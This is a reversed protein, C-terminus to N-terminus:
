TNPTIRYKQRYQAPSIGEAQRFRQSFYSPSSFGAIKAIHSLPFNTTRLLERCEQLRLSLMFSIPSVGYERTFTHSLHYKSVHAIEALMDLNLNERFHEKIYRCVLAGEKSNHNSAPAIKAAANLQRTILIMIVNLLEQCVEEYGFAKRDTERLIAQLYSLIQPAADDFRLICYHADPNDARNIELNEVGLVICELSSSDNGIESHVVHSNLIVMDNARIPQSDNGIHIQGNGSVAFLLEACAHTHPVSRHTSDLRVSSVYLLKAHKLFGHQDKSLIEFRHRNM